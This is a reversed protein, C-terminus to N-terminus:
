LIKKTPESSRGDLEDKHEQSSELASHKNFKKAVDAAATAFSNNTV